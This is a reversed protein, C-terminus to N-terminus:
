DRVGCGTGLAVLLLRYAFSPSLGSCQQNHGWLIFQCKERYHYFSTVGQNTSLPNSSAICLSEVASFILGPTRELMFELGLRQVIYRVWYSNVTKIKDKKRRVPKTLWVLVQTDMAFFKPSPPASPFFSLFFHFYHVTDIQWFLTVIKLDFTM